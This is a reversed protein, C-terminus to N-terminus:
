TAARKKSRRIIMDDSIQEDTRCRERMPPHSDRLKRRRAAIMFALIPFVHQVSIESAISFPPPPPFLFISFFSFLSVSSAILM